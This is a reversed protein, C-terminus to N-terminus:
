DAAASRADLFAATADRAEAAYVAAPGGGMLIAVALIEDVEQATAGARVADHSHITICGDCHQTVAIALAALEKTKRSLAGDAVAGRHLHGFGEMADPQVRNLDGFGRMLKRHRAIHDTM